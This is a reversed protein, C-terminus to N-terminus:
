IGTFEGADYYGSDILAEQVNDSTVVLVPSQKSPVDIAQNFYAADTNPTKGELIEIAMNMADAALVRTDKFVTMSQRGDIIYQVSAKEADQGTIFYKTVDTDAAFVDAISRSTGDNPALIYVQGKDAATKATLHAEAKSKAVNMDWDTTIEGIIAALQERSLEKIDKVADAQASNKIVFTGDAIKPQLINWAGQFFLFSNNDTLAGAYLYLPNGQGTANDVLYQGMAEGVSISDFTVYYDIADTDTILRDYSIVTIGEFKAMEVAAAAAAADHACIIIVKAGRAILTEVNTKEAASSGQSFLVEVSYPTKSIVDEFRAVDQLWRPEDKTPLVIGVDVRQAFMAGTNILLVSIAVLLVVFRKM